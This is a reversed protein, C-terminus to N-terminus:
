TQVKDAVQEPADDLSPVEVALDPHGPFYNSRGARRRGGALPRVRERRVFAWDPAQVTDPKEALLFGTEAAYVAGLKHRLVHYGAVAAFVGAYRGHDDGAPAM